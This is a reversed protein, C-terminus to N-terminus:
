IAVSQLDPDDASETISPSAAGIQFVSAYRIRWDPRSDDLPELGWYHAPWAPRLDDAEHIERILQTVPSWGRELAVKTRVDLDLGNVMLRGGPKVFSDLARLCTEADNPRMHCLFRNAVVIDQPGLADALEPDGADGSQWTIGKRLWPKISAEEGRIDFMSEIEEQSTREFIWAFYDSSPIAATDKQRVAAETSLDERQPKRMSYVGREAFEVIEPSIDIARIQLDIDPRASRVTWAISYVEAGKSCALVALKLPGGIPTEDALIKLLQLEARNRMFFTAFHQNRDEHLRVMRDIHRGLAIGARSSRTRSPLHGWVRRVQKLYSRAILEQMTSSVGTGLEKESLKSQAGVMREQGLEADSLQAWLGSPSFVRDFQGASKMRYEALKRAMKEKV